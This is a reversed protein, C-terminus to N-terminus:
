SVIAYRKSWRVRCSKSSALKAIFDAYSEITPYFSPDFTFSKGNKFFLYDTISHGSEEELQKSLDIWRSEKTYLTLYSYYIELSENRMGHTRVYFATRLFQESATMKVGDIHEVQFDFGYKALMDIPGMCIIPDDLQYFLSMDIM